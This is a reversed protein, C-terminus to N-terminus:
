KFLEIDFPEEKILTISGKLGIHTIDWRDASLKNEQPLFNAFVIVVPNESFVTTKGSYKTSTVIGDKITEICTYIDKEEASRPLDFIITKRNWGSELANEIITSFDRIGGCNKVIYTDNNLLMLYKSIYTKGTNGIPDYFWNIKRYDKKEIIELVKKQFENPILEIKEHNKPKHKFGTIIGQIDNPRNAMKLAEELNNNDWIKEILSPENEDSYVVIDQDEKSIYTRIKEYDIRKRMDICCINPHIKKYDFIRENTSEWRKKWTVLIHTHEYQTTTPLPVHTGVEGLGPTASPPTEVGRQVAGEHCMLLEQLEIKKLKKFFELVEKKDLHTKYTLFFRQNKFSFKTSM